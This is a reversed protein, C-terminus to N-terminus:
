LQTLFKLEVHVSCLSLLWIPTKGYPSSVSVDRFIEADFLLCTDWRDRPRSSNPFIFFDYTPEEAFPSEESGGSSEKAAASNLKWHM